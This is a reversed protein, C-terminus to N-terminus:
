YRFDNINMGVIYTLGVEDECGHNNFQIKKALTWKRIYKRGNLHSIEAAQKDMLNRSQLYM